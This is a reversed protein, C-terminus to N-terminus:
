KLILKDKELLDHAAITSTASIDTSAGCKVCRVTVHDDYIDCSIEGKEKCNCYIANDDNLDNIVFRIIELIQPDCLERRDKEENKLVSLDEQGLMALLEDNSRQIAGAVEKEKGIFCIDIGSMSCPIVFIDSDFFVSSSITYSHNAACALCPVTLQMKGDSTKEVSMDSGHCDCKLRFLKGSLSFAGVMSTTVGGCAPCRYALTTQKQNLIM